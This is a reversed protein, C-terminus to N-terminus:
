RNFEKILQANSIHIFTPRGHPCNFPQRCAKLEDIVQQMEEISLVRNFRISRHCAMTALRDRQLDEFRINRNNKFLDVVDQLFAQEDIQNMWVPLERVMMSNNGFSEFQISYRKLAANLEEIRDAIEATGEVVIPVLLHTMAPTAEVFKNQIEEFHVREQAAHQDIIYLGDDGQALIYCGHMQALVIMDPFTRKEQVADKLPPIYETKEERIELNATMDFSGAGLRNNYSSEASFSATNKYMSSATQRNSSEDSSDSASDPEFVATTFLPQMEIRTKISPAFTEVEHARMKDRLCAEITDKILFELQQEKSLRIEWKSPHVNVDVLQSDMEINLVVIPYRDSAIYDHYGELIAKQIRYNRIMRGNIFTTIYNKTARNISPLIAAGSLKYDYDAADIKVAQLAADKGYITYIVEQLDGKGTTKFVERGESIMRFSLDPHSLAFKQVVDLVLSNEYQPSKLHKLRAPTKLFLGGVSIHTGHNTPYPRASAMKGYNIEIRTSDKGDNTLLILNSVSAISPLAEGRFGMTHISWLDEVKAIKSTAHREFALCADERDMGSGDDSVEIMELGGQKLTIEIRRAGADISNEVLEKVIGQPREVVEGAAIMNTLHEDLRQIKGM